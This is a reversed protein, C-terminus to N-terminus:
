ITTKNSDIIANLAEIEQQLLQNQEKLLQNQEKLENAEGLSITQTVNMYYTPEYKICYLVSTNTPKSTYLEPINTWSSNSVWTGDDCHLYVGNQYIVSDLKGVNQPEYSNSTYKAYQQKGYDALYYYKHETADQHEGVNAGSGQNERSNEGTGRLFEGRLDPVCFTNLGDGGFYNYSGFETKIHEALDKYKVIEYETGDCILYDKPATNGMYSIITGIPTDAFAVTYHEEVNESTDIFIEIGEETPEENGIYVEPLGSSSNLLEELSIGKANQVAEILTKPALLNGNQDSLWNMKVEEM